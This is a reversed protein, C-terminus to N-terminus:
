RIRYGMGGMDHVVVSQAYRTRDDFPRIVMITIVKHKDTLHKQHIFEYESNTFPCRNATLLDGYDKSNRM